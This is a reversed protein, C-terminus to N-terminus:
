IKNIFNKKFYIDLSSAIDYRLQSSFVGTLHFIKIKDFPIQYHLYRRIKSGVFNYNEGLDYLQYKLKFAKVSLYGQNPFKTDIEIKKFDDDLKFLDIHKKSFVLVGSNFFRNNPLVNKLNYIKANQRLYSDLNKDKRNGEVWCGIKDKPVLHDLPELLPSLMCTDDLLILRDYYNLYEGLFFKEACAFHRFSSFNDEKSKTKKEVILDYNNKKAYLDLYKKVYKFWPRDGISLTVICVKNKM